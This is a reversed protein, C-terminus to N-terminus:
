RTSSSAGDQALSSTGSAAPTIYLKQEAAAHYIHLHRLVEMGIMIDPARLNATDAVHQARSGLILPDNPGGFQLPRVVVLPNTVAIGEFSLSSYKRFFIQNDPDDKPISASQPSSTEPSFGMKEEARAINLVTWAAGTDIAATLKHGDLTVPLEIHGQAPTVPVIALAQHPWTVVGGQCHDPSFFSLKMAGFDMDLDDRGLTGASLIGDFGLNPAVVFWVRSTKVGGFAVDDMIIGSEFEDGKLDM